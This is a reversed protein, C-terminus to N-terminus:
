CELSSNVDCVAKCHWKFFVQLIWCYPVQIVIVQLVHEVHESFHCSFFLYNSEVTSTWLNLFIIQLDVLQEAPEARAGHVHDDVHPGLQLAQGGGGVVRDLLDLRLALLHLAREPVQGARHPRQLGLLHAHLVQQPVDVVRGGGREGRLDPVLKRRQHPQLLLELLHPCVQLVHQVAPQRHVVLDHVVHLRDEVQQGVQVHLLQDARQQDLGVVHVQDDVDGRQDPRHDGQVLQGLVLDLVPVQVVRLAGLLEALALLSFLFFLFFLCFFLLFGLFLFTICLFCCLGSSIALYCLVFFIYPPSLPLLRCHLSWTSTISQFILLCYM